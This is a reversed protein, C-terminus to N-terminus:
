DEIRPIGPGVVELAYGRGFPALRGDNALDAISHQADEITWGLAIWRTLTEGGLRVCFYKGASNQPAVVVSIGELGRARGFGELRRTVTNSFFTM